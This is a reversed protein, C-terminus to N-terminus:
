SQKGAQLKSADRKCKPHEEIGLEKYLYATSLKARWDAEKKEKIVEEMNRREDGQTAEETSRLSSHAEAELGTMFFGSPKYGEASRPRSHQHTDPKPKDELAPKEQSPLPEDELRLKKYGLFPKYM